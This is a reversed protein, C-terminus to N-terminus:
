LSITVNKCCCCCCCPYTFAVFNGSSDVIAGDSSAASSIAADRVKNIAAVNAGTLIACDRLVDLEAHSIKPFTSTIMGPSKIASAYFTSDTVCRQLAKGFTGKKVVAAASTTGARASGATALGGLAAAGVAAAGVGLVTRRTLPTGTTSDDEALGEDEVPKADESV